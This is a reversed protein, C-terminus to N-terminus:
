VSLSPVLRAIARYVTRSSGRDVDGISWMETTTVMRALVQGQLDTLETLPEERKQFAASLRPIVLPMTEFQRARELRDCIAPIAIRQVEVPLQAISFAADGPSKGGAAPINEYGEIPESVFPM